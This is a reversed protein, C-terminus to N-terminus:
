QPKGLVQRSILAQRSLDELAALADQARIKWKEGAEVARLLLERTQALEAEVLDLEARALKLQNSM